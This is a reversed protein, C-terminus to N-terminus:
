SGTRTNGDDSQRPKSRMNVPALESRHGTMPQARLRRQAAGGSEDLYAALAAPDDGLAVLEEVSLEDDRQHPKPHKPDFVDFSDVWKQGGDLEAELTGKPAVGRVEDFAPDVWVVAGTDPGSNLRKEEEPTLWFRRNPPMAEPEVAEILKILERNLFNLVDVIRAHQEIEVDAAHARRQRKNRSEWKTKCSTENPDDPDPCYKPKPGRKPEPMPEAPVEAPKGLYDAVISPLVYAPRPNWALRKGCWRCFGPESEQSRFEPLPRSLIEEVAPWLGARAAIDKHRPELTSVEFIDMIM